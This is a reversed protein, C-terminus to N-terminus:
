PALRVENILHKLFILDSSLNQSEPCFVDVLVSSKLESNSLYKTIYPGRRTTAEETYWGQFMNRTRSKTGFIPIESIVMDTGEDNHFYKKSFHNRINRHEELAVNDQSDKFKTLWMGLFGGDSKLKGLWIFNSDTGFIKWDNPIQISVGWISEIESQINRVYETPANREFYGDLGLNDDLQRIFLFLKDWDSKVLQNLDLNEIDILWQGNGCPNKYAAIIQSGIKIKISSDFHSPHYNQILAMRISALSAFEMNSRSHLIFSYSSLYRNILFLNSDKPFNHDLENIWSNTQASDIFLHIHGEADVVSQRQKKEISYDINSSCSYLVIFVIIASFFWKSSM